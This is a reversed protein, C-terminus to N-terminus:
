PRRGRSALAVCALGMLLANELLKRCVPVEGGGCGCDFRIRCLPLGTARQIELARLWVFWSFMGLLGFSALATGRVRFGVILLGGCFVEFWPLLAAIWTPNLPRVWEPLPYEHVLKLFDGPHIAKDLGLRVFCAGLLIRALGGIVGRFHFPPTPIMTSPIM